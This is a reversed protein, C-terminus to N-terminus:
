PRIRTKLITERRRYLPKQDLRLQRAIQSIKLEGSMRALLADEASLKKLADKLLKLVIQRRAAKERADVQEDPALEETPHSELAEEGEVPPRDM